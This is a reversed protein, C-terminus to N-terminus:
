SAHLSSRGLSTVEHHFTPSVPCRDSWSDDIYEWGGSWVSGEAITRGTHEWHHGRDVFEWLRGAGDPDVQAGCYRCHLATPDGTGAMAECERMGTHVWQKWPGMWFM